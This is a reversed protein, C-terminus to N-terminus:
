RYYDKNKVARLSYLTVDFVFLFAGQLILSKGHGKWLDSKNIGTRHGRENLAWGTAMYALDLGANFLLTKQFDQEQRLFGNYSGPTIARSNGYLAAGAIALNVTNWYLNGRHFYKMEGVANKQLVAGAIMNTAAWGGLVYMSRNSFQIREHHAAQFDLQANINFFSLLGM